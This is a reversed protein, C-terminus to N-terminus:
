RCVCIKQSLSITPAQKPRVSSPAMGISRHYSDNYLKVIGPLVDVYRLTKNCTFYRWMRSKLTKIVREVISCKTTDDSTTFYKVHKSKLWSQFVKSKFEVGRDSRIVFPLEKEPITKFVKVVESPLKSKLPFALVKKSFVDICVLVYKYNDNYEALRNLDMLDIEWQYSPVGAIIRRRLFKYRVPKHLTYADQSQLWDRTVKASKGVSSALLKVNGSYATRRPLTYYARNLLQKQKTHGM